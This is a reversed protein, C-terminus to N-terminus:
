RLRLGILTCCLDNVFIALGAASGFIVLGAQLIGKRGFRDGIAGAPMLLGAFVMTYADVIWQLEGSQTAGTDRALEPLAVNFREGRLHGDDPRPGGRGFRDPTAKPLTPREDRQAQPEILLIEARAPIRYM